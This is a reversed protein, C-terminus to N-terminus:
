PLLCYLFVAAWGDRVWCHWFDILVAEGGLVIVAVGFVCQGSRSSATEACWLELRLEGPQRVSGSQSAQFEGQEDM